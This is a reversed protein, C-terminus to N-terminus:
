CARCLAGFLRNGVQNDEGVFSIPDEQIKQLLITPHFHIHTPLNATDLYIHALRRIHRFYGRARALALNESGTAVLAFLLEITNEIEAKASKLKKDRHFELALWSICRHLNWVDETDIVSRAFSKARDDVFCSVFLDGRNKDSCLAKLLFREAEYTGRLHGLEEIFAWSKLLEECSSIQAGSPITVSTSLGFTKATQKFFHIFYLQLVLYEYRSHHGCKLIGRLEGLHDQQQLHAVASNSFREFLSFVQASEAHLPVEIRGLM